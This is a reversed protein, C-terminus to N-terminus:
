SRGCDAPANAALALECGLAEFWAGKGFGKPKIKRLSLADSGDSPPERFTGAPLGAISRRAQAVFGM